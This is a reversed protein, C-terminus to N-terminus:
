PVSQSVYKHTRGLLRSLRRTISTVLGIVLLFRKQELRAFRNFAYQRAGIAMSILDPQAGTLEHFHYDLLLTNVNHRLQRSWAALPDRLEVRFATAPPLFQRPKYGSRLAHVLQRYPCLLLIRRGCAILYPNLLQAIRGTIVVSQM